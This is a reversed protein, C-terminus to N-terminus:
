ASCTRPGRRSGDCRDASAALSRSWRSRSSTPEARPASAVASGRRGCVCRTRHSASFPASRTASASCVRPPHGCRSRATRKPFPSRVTPSSRRGARHAPAHAPRERRRRRGRLLRRRCRSSPRGRREDRTEPFLLPAGDAAADIAGLAVPLPEIDLVVAEAADVAAEYSEAVVVAVPEGVFRVRDVALVPRALLASTSRAKRPCTWTTSGDTRRRSRAPRDRDRRRHATHARAGRHQERLRCAAPRRFM